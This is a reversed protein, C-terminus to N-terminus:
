ASHIMLAVIEGPGGLLILMSVIETFLLSVVEKLALQDDGEGGKPVIVAYSIRTPFFGKIPLSFSM